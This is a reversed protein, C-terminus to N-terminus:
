SIKVKTKESIEEIIKKIKKEGEETYFSLELSYNNKKAFDFIEKILERSYGRNQYIPDISIFKLWLSKLNEPNEELEALGIIKESEKIVPYFKKNKDYKSDLVAELDFYKFVGGKEPDDFRKDQPVNKGQYILDLLETLSLVSTTTNKQEKNEFKTFNEM